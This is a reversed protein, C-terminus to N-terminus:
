YIDKCSEVMNNHDICVDLCNTKCILDKHTDTKDFWLKREARIEALSKGYIGGIPNGRERMYIVCPFHKGHLAVMDDKVLHCKHCDSEALGRVHRGNKLNNIRYKLIPYDTKVDLNIHHNSQASPIIRIDSVGLGTAYKIINKLEANNRNDLVVGVTVYTIESLRRIVKCIHNFRSNTGAMKDATAACCADLSISFDNVGAGLLDLYFNIDASGNTSIAIREIGREKTYEVLGLLDPWITPEGGSFRINKLKGISWIYVADKAESFTLDGCYNKKIGRCYECKFNCRDTLILECRQLNSEWSVSQARANSLTYFGIDDLKV